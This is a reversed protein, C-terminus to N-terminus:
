RARSLQDTLVKTDLEALVDGKSVRMGESVNVVAPKGDVKYVLPEWRWNSDWTGAKNPRAPFFGASRM